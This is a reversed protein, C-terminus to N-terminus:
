FCQTRSAGNFTPWDESSKESEVEDKVKQKAAEVAITEDFEVTIIGYDEQATAVIEVVNSLNKLRDELPDLILREIDEATNGPYPASIYIKTEKIEPFPERPMDYYAKGGLLLIVGILVYIITKHDIAWSALGFEKNLNKNSKSM